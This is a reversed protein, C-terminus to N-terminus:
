EKKKNTQEGERKTKLLAASSEVLLVGVVNVLVVLRADPFSLLAPSRFPFFPNSAIFLMQPTLAVLM